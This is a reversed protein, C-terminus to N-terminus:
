LNKKIVESLAEADMFGTTTDIIVGDKLFILTPVSSINYEEVLEECKEVDLKFFKVDLYVDSAKEYHSLLMKCPACWTTFFGVIVLGPINQTSSNFQESSILQVNM